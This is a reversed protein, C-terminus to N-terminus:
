QIPYEIPDYVSVLAHPSMNYDLSQVDEVEYTGEVAVAVAVVVDDVAVVVDVAAVAVGPVVPAVDVAVVISGFGVGVLLWVVIMDGVGFASESGPVSSSDFYASDSDYHSAVYYNNAASV